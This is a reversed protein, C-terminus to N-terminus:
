QQINFRLEMGFTRPDGYYLAAFAPVPGLAGSTDNIFGTFYREDTINRGWISASWRGTPDVYELAADVTGYDDVHGVPDNYTDTFFSTTWSYSIIPTFVGFDTHIDYSADLRATSDPSRVPDCGQAVCDYPQGARITDFDTFEADLYGIAAGLRM